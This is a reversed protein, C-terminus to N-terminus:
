AQGRRDVGPHPVADRPVGQIVQTGEEVLAVGAIHFRQFAGGDSLWGCPDSLGTERRLRHCNRQDQERTTERVRALDDDRGRGDLVGGPCRGPSRSRESGAVM